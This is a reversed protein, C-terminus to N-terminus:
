LEKRLSFLIEPRIIGGVAPICAGKGLISTLANYRGGQAVAPLSPAGKLSIIFIFGDYYELSTRTLNAVFNLNKVNISLQSMAEIRNSLNDCVDGVEAGLSIFKKLRNPADPLSSQLAQIKEIMLVVSQSIPKRTEERLLEKSRVIIEEVSRQGIVPGNAEVYDKVKENKIAQFLAARSDGVSEGASLQVLLQKFRDPRWLHRLLLRRKNDSIDLCNVVARIIGMDGIEADLELGATSRQFLEFVEADAKWSDIEHFNEFGVQYYESLKKSGYPQSRWVLGSYSYKGSNKETAIHMQVIPVTFDPRLIKKEGFPDTTTYARNRIDEGYLDILVSSDLLSPVVLELAGADEFIRMLKATEARLEILNTSRQYDSEFDKIAVSNSM